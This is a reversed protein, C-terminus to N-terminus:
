PDGNAGSLLQPSPNSVPVISAFGAIEGDPGIVYPALGIVQGMRDLVYMGLGDRSSKVQQYSEFTWPGEIAGQNTFRVRKAVYAENDSYLDVVLPSMGCERYVKAKYKEPRFSPDEQMVLATAIEVAQEKSSVDVRSGPRLCAMAVAVIAIAISLSRIKLRVRLSRM